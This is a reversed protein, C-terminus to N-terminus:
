VEEFPCRNVSLDPTLLNGTGQFSETGLVNGTLEWHGIGDMGDMGDMGNWGDM